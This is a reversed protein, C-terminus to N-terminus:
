HKVWDLPHAEDLSFINEFIFKINDNVVDFMDKNHLRLYIKLWFLHEHYHEDTGISLDDNPAAM